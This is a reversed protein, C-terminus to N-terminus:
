ARAFLSLRQPEAIETGPVDVDLVFMSLVEGDWCVDVMRQEENRSDSVVEVIDGAPIAVPIRHGDVLELALTCRELRFKQGTLM